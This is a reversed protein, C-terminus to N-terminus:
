LIGRLALVTVVAALGWVYFSFYRFRARYLLTLVLRLAGIGVFAAVVFGVLLPLLGVAAPTPAAAPPQAAVELTQLFSAGLITPFAVFFSYEAAWRRKVGAFLAFAITLGSRSLGPILALAQALGIVVAIRPTIERLGRPRPGVSDTWWLLIGTVVLASAMALPHAFVGEFLRKLPLGVAGTVGFTLLGLLALRLYLRDTTAGRLASRAGSVVKAVFRGLSRRFVVVISVLTGVHVMLNFLIMEASEPPPLASGGGILVHQTLALHSTSSVPVFMFLGQVIGLLTAELITM